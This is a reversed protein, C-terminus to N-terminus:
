CSTDDARFLAVFPTSKVGDNRAVLRQHRFPPPAWKKTLGVSPCFPIARRQIIPPGNPSCAHLAVSDLSPRGSGLRLVSSANSKRRRISAIWVPTCCGHVLQLKISRRCGMPPSEVRESAEKWNEGARHLLLLLLLLLARKQFLEPELRPTRPPHEQKRITM